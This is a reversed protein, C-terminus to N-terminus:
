LCSQPGTQYNGSGDPFVQVVKSVVPSAPFWNNITQTGMNTISSGTISYVTATFTGASVPTGATWTGPWSSSSPTVCYYGDQSGGGGGGGWLPQSFANQQLTGTLIQLDRIQQQDLRLMDELRKIRAENNTM